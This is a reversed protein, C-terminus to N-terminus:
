NQSLKFTIIDVAHSLKNYQFELSAFNNCLMNLTDRLSGTFNLVDEDILHFTNIEFGWVYVYKTHWEYALLSGNVNYMYFKGDYHPVNEQLVDKVPSVEAIIIELDRKDFIHPRM